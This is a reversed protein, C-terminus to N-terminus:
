LQCLQKENDYIVMKDQLSIDGIINTNGLGIETGDLIGLCVNGYKSLFEAILTDLCSWIPSHTSRWLIFLRRRESKLLPRGCQSNPWSLSAALIPRALSGSTFKLAINDLVLVGLSSGQDAYEVEYDCQEDPDACPESHIAACLRDGCKVLKCHPKNLKDRPLTCGQCPADWQFWTLDSGTDIDLEYLKP